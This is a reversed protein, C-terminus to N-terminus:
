LGKRLGFGVAKHAHLFTVWPGIGCPGFTMRGRHAPCSQKNGVLLSGRVEALAGKEVGQTPRLLLPPRSNRGNKGEDSATGRVRTSV